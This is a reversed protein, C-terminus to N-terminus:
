RPRLKHAFAMCEEALRRRDASDRMLIDSVSVAIGMSEIEARLGADVRDIMIGAILGRYAQGVTVPSIALGLERMMKAAPGKVAAGGIIPSIAVVPAGAALISDSLGPLKLIPGLSVYPNSPCLIIAELDPAALAAVVEASPHANDIGDFSFGTVPVECRLRVFYDQFSLSGNNTHVITRVRDDSMPLIRARIGLRACLDATVDTLRMGGRLKESRLAHTAIDRDGLRFWTPGGLKGIQDMFAWTEGAVGWGQEANAVGGLTYMVSDLDPSVLLGLHEFDDGINVIVSLSEGAIQALGDALRAGGVGGALAVIM